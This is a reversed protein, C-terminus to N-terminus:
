GLYRTHGPLKFHLLVLERNHTVIAVTNGHVSTEKARYEPPLWLHNRGDLTVWSNKVFLGRIRPKSPTEAKDYKATNGLYVNGASTTVYRDDTSFSLGTIIEPIDDLVYLCQGTFPNWVRLGRDWDYAETHRKWVTLRSASALLMGNRSFTINSIDCRHGRLTQLRHGTTVEWVEAQCGFNLRMLQLTHLSRRIHSDCIYLVSGEATTSVSAFMTGDPSFTAANDPNGHGGSPQLGTGTSPEWFFVNNDTTILAVLEGNTSVYLQCISLSTSAEFWDGSSLDLMRGISDKELLAIKNGGPAVSVYNFLYPTCNFRLLPHGTRMDWIYVATMDNSVLGRGGPLMCVRQFINSRGRFQRLQDGTALDWVQITRNAWSVLTKGDFSSTIGDVKNTSQATEQFQESKSWLRVQGDFSASALLQEGSTTSPSFAVSYIMGTHGEMVQLHRKTISDWLWISGDYAASALVKGSPSFSMGLVQGSHGRLTYLLQGTLPSWLKIEMPYTPPPYDFGDNAAALMTGDGSFVLSQIGRENLDMIHICRGTVSDWIRIDGCDSASALINAYNTAPCFVIARVSETHGILVHDCTGNRPNWLRVTQDYSSSALIDGSRSFAVKNAARTHGEFVHLRQGTFVDWLWVRRSSQPISALTTGDPSFAITYHGHKFDNIGVPHDVPHLSDREELSQLCRGSLPDWLRTRHGSKSALVNGDPSFCIYKVVEPNCELTQRLPSWYTRLKPLQAMWQLALHGFRIRVQSKSPAFVLASFYIQLPSMEIVAQNAQALRRAEWVLTTVEPCESESAIAEFSILARIGDSIMRMWSLAELWHLIHDNLFQHIEAGDILAVNSDLLHKVWHLAAYQLEPVLIRKKRTEDVDYVSTGPAGVACIDQKLTANMLRLCGVMLQRNAWHKRVLFATDRCRSGDVLFDRFSPHHLRIVGAPGDSVDLIARLRSLLKASQGQSIQILKCMSDLPLPSILTVIAGLLHRLDDCFTEKERKTYTSVISAKLVSTYMDNLHEEPAASGPSGELLKNLREAAYVEGERIFRCATACWIFLGSARDALREIARSGLSMFELGKEQAISQLETRLFLQIDQKVTDTPIDHLVFARHSTCPMRSFGVKIPIDPRSTILIKFLRHFEPQTGILFNLITDIADPNDCEDLADIVLLYTQQRFGSGSRSIPELVLLRWQDRLSYSDIPTSSTIADCIFRQLPLINRALQSAITTVFRRAHSVDGSGRSFFFSAGLRQEENFQGAITTAITSKGTGAWGSLWFINQNDDSRSWNNIEELVEVRTGKLCAREHQRQYSNFNAGTAYPLRQLTKEVVQKERLNDLVMRTQEVAAPSIVSLLDKAYAAAMAAAYRQWRNNKHSDAYDCIGRIVVCPFNNMIGAAEMEFCLVDGIEAAVSDRDIADKIVLNGSAILGYHVVVNKNRKRRQLVREKSCNECTSGGAHLYKADFLVDDGLNTSSFTPISEFRSIYARFGSDQGKIHSAQVRAIGELVVKPPANLFGTRELGSPTLKGFDYQIVGGHMKGPLGVVVDGLRVDANVSPVGGGIGVLLGFRLSPFSSKLEAAVTAASNTGMQGSPLCAVVVNHEGIRGLTYRSSLGNEFANYTEDLMETAAALEIPLACIWGVVYDGASPPRQYSM